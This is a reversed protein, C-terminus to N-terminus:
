QVGPAGFFNVGLWRGVDIVGDATLIDQWDQRSVETLDNTYILQFEGLNNRDVFIFYRDKQKTYRWVQYPPATGVSM